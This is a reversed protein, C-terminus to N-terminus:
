KHRRKQRRDGTTWGPPRDVEAVAPTLDAGGASADGGEGGGSRVSSSGAVGSDGASGGASGGATAAAPMRVPAHGRVFYVILAGLVISGIAVLQPETLGLAIVPNRRVFEVLLREVGALVLYWGFVWWAPQPRRAMRYLVVFVITMAIIEYIPTPQVRVGPPTPVTGNPYGMAWPLNSVKGYDGDGALQCGIRGIAYGIALAPAACNFLLGLPVKRWLALLMTLGVGGILGGYWTFGAGTLAVHWFDKSAESWHEVLYWLRAGVIGGVATTLIAEYIFDSRVGNRKLLPLAVALAPVIISLAMMLGFSYFKVGGVTFLVPYM